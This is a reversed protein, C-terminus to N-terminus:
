SLAHKQQQKYILMWAWPLLMNSVFILVILLEILQELKQIGFPPFLIAYRQQTIESVPLCGLKPLIHLRLPSFWLGNKGDNKLEAKRTEFADM